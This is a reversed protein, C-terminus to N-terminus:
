KKGTGLMVTVTNSRYNVFVVDVVSDGNLDSLVASTPSAGTPYNVQADFSGDALGFLVSLSGTAIGSDNTVVLDPRGDGNLDGLAVSTPSNDTGYETKLSVKGDGTGLQVSASASLMNATVVDLKGDQNVDGLAAGVVGYGTTYDVAPAFQGGGTGLLVEVLGPYVTVVLDLWGDGNMDGLAVSNPASTSHLAGALPYDTKATLSGDGAGLLVSAAHSAFYNLTVVDLKSDHNLDGLAVCAPYQGAPYNVKAAFTGNGTGLLVSLSDASNNAVILDPRTDGNLDGIAVSYAGNETAYDVSTPFTGNGAGLLVSVSDSDDNAVVLDPSHDGNLDGIAVSSPAFGVRYGAVTFKGDSTPALPPSGSSGTPMSGASNLNGGVESKFGGGDTVGGSGSAIGGSGGSAL